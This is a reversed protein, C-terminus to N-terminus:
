PYGTWKKAFFIQLWNNHEHVKDEYHYTIYVENPM